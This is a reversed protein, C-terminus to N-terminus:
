DPKFAIPKVSDPGKVSDPKSGSIPARRQGAPPEGERILGGLWSASSSTSLAPLDTVELPGPPSALDVRLRKKIGNGARARKMFASPIPSALLAEEVDHTIFLFPRTTSAGV